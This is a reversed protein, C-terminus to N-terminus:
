ENMNSSPPTPQFRHIHHTSTLYTGRGFSIGNNPYFRVTRFCEVPRIQAPVVCHLCEWGRIKVFLVCDNRKESRVM